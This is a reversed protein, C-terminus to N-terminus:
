CVGGPVVLIFLGPQFAGLLALVRGLSRYIQLGDVLDIIAGAVGSSVATLM